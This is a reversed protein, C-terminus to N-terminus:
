GIAPMTSGKGGSRGNVESTYQGELKSVSGTRGSLQRRGSQGALSRGGSRGAHGSLRGSVGDGNSGNGNGVTNILYQLWIRASALGAGISGAQVVSRKPFMTLGVVVTGAPILSKVATRALKSQGQLANEEVLDAAESTLMEGGLASISSTMVNKLNKGASSVPNETPNEATEMISSDSHSSHHSPHDGELTVLEDVPNKARQYESPNSRHSSGKFREPTPEGPELWTQIQGNEDRIVEKNKGSVPERTYM